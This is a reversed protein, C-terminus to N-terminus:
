TNGPFLRWDIACFIFNLAFYVFVLISQLRTPITCWGLPQIHRYGFTAPLIVHKAWLNHMKSFLGTNPAAGKGVLAASREADLPLPGKALLRRVAFAMLRNFAGFFVVGAALIYM